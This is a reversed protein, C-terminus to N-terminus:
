HTQAWSPSRKQLWLGVKEDLQAVLLAAAEDHGEALSEVLRAFKNVEGSEPGSGGAHVTNSLHTGFRPTPPLSLPTPPRTTTPLANSHATLTCTV